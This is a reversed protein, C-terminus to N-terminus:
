KIQVSNEEIRTPFINGVLFYLFGTGSFEPVPYLVRTVVRSAKVLWSKILYPILDSVRAWTLPPM